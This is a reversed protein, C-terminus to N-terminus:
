IVSMFDDVTWHQRAIAWALRKKVHEAKLLPRRKALWKKIHADRLVRDITALSVDPAYKNRFDARNMTRNAKAAAVLAKRQIQSLLGPRGSRPLNEQDQLM